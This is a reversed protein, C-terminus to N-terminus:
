LELHLHRPPQPIPLNILYDTFDVLVILTGTIHQPAPFTLTLTPPDEPDFPTLWMDPSLRTLNRGNLLSFPFTCPVLSNFICLPLIDSLRM